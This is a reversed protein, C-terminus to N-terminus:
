RGVPVAHTVADRNVRGRGLARPNVPPVVRVVWACECPLAPALPVLDLALLPVPDDPCLCGFLLPQTASCACYRSSSAANGQTRCRGASTAMLSRGWTARQMENYGATLADLYM